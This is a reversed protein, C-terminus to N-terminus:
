RNVSPESLVSRYVAIVKQTIAVESLQEVSSRGAVRGGRRLVRELAAAIAGASEDSCVECGEILGIRQEVDGVSVSVVPLNCALAEKVANPSGEQMSTFVLADCASMYSPIDTHPVGWCVILRAPLRANLLDLAETALSYRKRAQEPNGVFLVLRDHLPLGLQQRAEDRPICRFLGFDIGSPIVHCKESGRLQARMHESVLIVADAKAAVLRSLHQNLKGVFTYRGNRNSVTGLIDSGRLTVVYPLRKPLALLGSQGFQAHILDYRSSRLKKRVAMWAKSYSLPNKRARFHFVDLDVGATRLFDAQRKIFHSTRAGGPGPWNTTIM